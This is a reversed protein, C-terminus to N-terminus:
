MGLQDHVSATLLDLPMGGRVLVADHFAAIDFDPGLAQQAESRLQFIHRQGMKYSLAQGAMGIYRDVEQEIVARPIPTWRVMWDIAQQRSWGKAHLGTDVVLRGARWADASLMGLRDLDSSYLGMEDALRETYLGWGEAHATHSGYRRFTPVDTLEQALTRDFHHGPIAEHFAIGEYLYRGREDAEHTNIFYTGPRSGDEAPPFYYAPPMAPALSAPVPKVQCPAQPRAAFWGDIAAWAREIVEEAHAVMADGDAYRLDEDTRLREFLTPLDGVGLASRGIEDWERPLEEEADIRGIQHVEEPDVDLSTHMRALTAYREDGGPQHMLGVHEDDRAVPLVEDRVFQLHAAYAPRVVEDVLTRMRDRWDDAVEDPVTIAVFPDDDLDSALYAEVQGVVREVCIAAPTLGRGMRDRNRAAVEDFLRPVQRHRELLADAQEATAAGTQSAAQVLGTHVGLFPDIAGTQIELDLHAIGEDAEHVLLDRTLRDSPDDLDLARAASATAVLDDRQQQLSDPDLRPLRDDFRHDGLLTATTPSTAMARDWYEEALRDLRTADDM